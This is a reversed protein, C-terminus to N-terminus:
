KSESRVTASCPQNLLASLEGCVDGKMLNALVTEESSPLVQLVGEEVVFLGQPPDNVVLLKDDPKLRVVSAANIIASHNLTIKLQKEISSLVLELSRQQSDTLTPQSDESAPSLPAQSNKNETKSSTKSTADQEDEDLTLNRRFQQYDARHLQTNSTEGTGPRSTMSSSTGM